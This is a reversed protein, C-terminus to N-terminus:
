EHSAHGADHDPTQGAAFMRQSSGSSSQQDLQAATLDCALLFERQGRHERAEPHQQGHQMGQLLVGDLFKAGEALQHEALGHAGGGSALLTTDISIPIALPVWGSTSRYQSTSQAPLM